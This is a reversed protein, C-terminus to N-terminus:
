LQAEFNNNGEFCTYGGDPCKGFIRGDIWVQTTNLEKLRSFVKRFEEDGDRVAWLSSNSQQCYERAEFFTQRRDSAPKICLCTPEYTVVNYYPV